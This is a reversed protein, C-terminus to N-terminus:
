TRARVPAKCGYDEGKVICVRLAVPMDEAIDGTVWSTCYKAPHGRTSAVRDIDFEGAVPNIDMQMEAGWGDPEPDCAKIADGPDSAFPDANFLGVAHTKGDSGKWYLDVYDDDASATGSWALTLGAATAAAALIRTRNKRM